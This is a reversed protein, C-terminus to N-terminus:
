MEGITGAVPAMLAWASLLSVGLAAVMWVINLVLPIVKRGIFEKGVLMALLVLTSMVIVGSPIMLVVRTPLPLAVGFDMFIQMFVPRQLVLAGVFGLLGLGNLVALAVSIVGCVTNKGDKM